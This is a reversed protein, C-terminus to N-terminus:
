ASPKDTLYQIATTTDNIIPNSAVRKKLKMMCSIKQTLQYALNLPAGSSRLSDLSKELGIGQIKGFEIRQSQTPNAVANGMVYQFKRMFTDSGLTADFTLVDTWIEGPNMVINKESNFGLVYAPPPKKLHAGANDASTFQIIGTINDAVLKKTFALVATSSANANAGGTRLSVDLYNRWSKIRSYVKGKLPVNDINTFDDREAVAEGPSSEESLSRNQVTLTSKFGFVFNVQKLNIQGLMQSATPSVNTSYLVANLLEKPQDGAGSTTRWQDFLGKAIDSYITNAPIIYSIESGTESPNNTAPNNIYRILITQNQGLDPTDTWNTIDRRAQRFLEKVIARFVSECLETAPVSHALYLANTSNATLSGGYENIKVSGKLNFRKDFNQKVNLKPLQGMYTGSTRYKYKKTRVNKPVALSRNELVQQQKSKNKAGLPRGRKKPIYKQAVQVIKKGTNYVQKGTQYGTYATQAGAIVRPVYSLARLTQKPYRSAVYQLGRVVPVYM